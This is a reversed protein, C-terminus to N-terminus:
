RKRTSLRSWAVPSRSSLRSSGYRRNRQREMRFQVSTQGFPRFGASAILWIRPMSARSASHVAPAGDRRARACTPGATPTAMPSTAKRTAPATSEAGDLGDGDNDTDIHDADTDDSANPDPTVLKVLGASIMPPNAQTPELPVLTPTVTPDNLLDESQDDASGAGDADVVNMQSVQQTLEPTATVVVTIVRYETSCAALLVVAYLASLSSRSTNCLM